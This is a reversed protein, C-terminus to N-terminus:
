LVRVCLLSRAVWRNVCCVPSCHNEKLWAAPPCTKLRGVALTITHSMYVGEYVYVYLHPVVTTINARVQVRVLM